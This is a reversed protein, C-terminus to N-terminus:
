IAEMMSRPLSGAFGGYAGIGQAQAPYSGAMDCTVACVCAGTEMAGSGTAINSVAGSQTPVAAVSSTAAATGNGTIASGSGQGKAAIANAQFQAHTKEASPNISFVMGQGCHNGTKCYFWLPEQTMVEMAVQPPPIVSNNPNPQTQSDMGGALPECPTDFGSQTATHMQSMFTFIVMDGPLASIEPPTFVLGAEGGVTIHHTAGAPAASATEHGVGVEVSATVTETVAVQEHVTTTAAAAGGPHAWIVLVQTETPAVGGHFYNYGANVAVDHVGPVPAALSDHGTSLHNSRRLPYKNDIAKAAVMPVIAASVAASFKM